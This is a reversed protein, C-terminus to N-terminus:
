VSQILALFASNFRDPQELNLLHGAAPLVELRSGSIAAHMSEAESAPILQDDSGHLILCPVDVQGLTPTSDPRDRLGSLAGVIGELSTVKMIAAVEQVLAPASTYTQPALMRPLMSEAVSQPGKERAQAIAKDRSAKGEPSDPGARTAALVLGAVRQRYRRYYAMAVYGGMSLGCIVAPEQIGLAELIAACDDALLDMSFPGAAPTTEGHGRLDPAIVHAATALSTIQPWWMKRSLPFGHILLVPIGSGMYELAFNVGRLSIHM